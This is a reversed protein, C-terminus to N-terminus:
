FGGRRTINVRIRQGVYIQQADIGPISLLVKAGTHKDDEIACHAFILGPMRDKQIQTIEAEYTLEM